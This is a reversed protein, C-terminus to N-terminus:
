GQRALVTDSKALVRYEEWLMGARIKLVTVNDIEALCPGLGRGADAAKDAAQLAIEAAALQQSAVLWAGLAQGVRYQGQAM